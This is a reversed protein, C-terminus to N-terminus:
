NGQSTAANYAGCSDNATRTTVGYNFQSLGASCTIQANHANAYKTSTGLKFFGNVQAQTAMKTYTANGPDAYATVVAVPQGNADVGFKTVHVESGVRDFDIAGEITIGVGSPTKFNNNLPAAYANSFIMAIAAFVAYIIKKM